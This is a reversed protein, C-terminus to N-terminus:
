TVAFYYEAKRGLEINPQAAVVRHKDQVASCLRGCLMSLIGPRQVTNTDLQCGHVFTTTNEALNTSLQGVGAMGQDIWSFSEFSDRMTRMDHVAGRCGRGGHEMIKIGAISRTLVCSLPNDPLVLRGTKKGTKGTKGTQGNARKGTQGNAQKCTPAPPAPTPVKYHVLALKM